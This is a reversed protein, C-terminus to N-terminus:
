LAGSEMHAAPCTPRLVSASRLLADGSILGRNKGARKAALLAQDARMFVDHASESSPPDYVAIGASCTITRGLGEVGESARAIAERVREVIEDAERACVGPLLLLFEEGGVRAARDYPRLCSSIASGVAALVTDGMTHGLDDNVAKFDDLDLMCCALCREERSSRAVEDTLADVGVRRVGLGTLSDKNALDYIQEQADRMPVLVRTGLLHLVLASSFLLVVVAIGTWMRSTAIYGLPETVDLHVVTAGANGAVQGVWGPHCRGCKEAMPIGLAYQFEHSRGVQAFSYVESSGSNLQAIARRTFADPKNEVNMPALSSLNMRVTQNSERDLIASVSRAVCPANQLVYQKGNPAYIAPMVGPIGQLHPNVTTEASAPVYIGSFGQVYTRVANFEQAHARAQSVIGDKIARESRMQFAVLTASMAVSFILTAIIALTRLRAYQRTPGAEDWNRKV